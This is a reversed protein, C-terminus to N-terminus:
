KTAMWRAPMAQFKKKVREDWHISRNTTTFLQSPQALVVAPGDGFQVCPVAKGQHKGIGRRRRSDKEVVCCIEDYCGVLGRSEDVSGLISRDGRPGTPGVGHEFRVVRRRASNVFPQGQAPGVPAVVKTS